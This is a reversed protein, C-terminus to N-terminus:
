CSRADRAVPPGPRSLRALLVVIGYTNVLERCCSCVAAHRAFEEEAEKALRGGFHEPLLDSVTRCNM